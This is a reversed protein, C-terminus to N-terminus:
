SHVDSMGIPLSALSYGVGVKTLIYHPQTADIEMKRRLRNINVQLMHSEGLYEPGWVHELLLDQTVVRGVNQALYAIIRYETPTLAIEQGNMIVMHQSYDVLLNGTATTARLGQSHERSTFQARRLVARVRALLEDVSFPKTLYDDAGLDLGRVKDQDQGRATVIIIPVASFERVRYCVTFGDMKPMMVDLLVLDPANSEVLELAQQGDSAALVDYGELQLNRTMLRLLQPDDDAALITTKKAPM